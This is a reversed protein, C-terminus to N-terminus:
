MSSESADLCDNLNQLSKIDGRMEEILIECVEKIKKLKIEADCIPSHVNEIFFENLQAMQGMANLVKYKITPNESTFNLLM